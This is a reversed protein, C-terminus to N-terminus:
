KALARKQLFYLFPNNIGFCALMFRLLFLCECSILFVSLPEYLTTARM